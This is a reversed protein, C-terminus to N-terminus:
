QDIQGRRRLERNEIVESYGSLDFRTTFRPLYDVGTSVQSEGRFRYNVAVLNIIQDLLDRRMDIFNMLLFLDGTVSSKAPIQIINRETGEAWLRGNGYLVYALASLDVPYPNPNDIRLGVRFRTNILEAQLIAISTISFVPPRVGPFAALGSVQLRAPPAAGRAAENDQSFELETILRVEYDDAPALGQTVLAAVDMNLRLPFSGSAGAEIRFSGDAGELAFGSRASQGNVQVQWSEIEARGAFPFPNNITLTFFLTLNDPSEAEIGDFVLSPLHEPQVQPATRCASFFLGAALLSACISFFTLNFLKKMGEKVIPKKKAM